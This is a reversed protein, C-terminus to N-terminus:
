LSQRVESVSVSVLFANELGTKTFNQIIFPQHKRVSYLVGLALQSLHQM